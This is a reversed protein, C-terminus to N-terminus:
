AHLERELATAKVGLVDLLEPLIVGGGQAVPGIAQVLVQILGVHERALLAGPHPPEVQARGAM